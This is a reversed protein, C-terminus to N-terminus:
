WRAEALKLLRYPMPPTATAAIALEISERRDGALLGTEAREAVCPGKVWKQGYSKRNSM